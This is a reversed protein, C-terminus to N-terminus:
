KYKVLNHLNINGGRKTVYKGNLHRGMSGRRSIEPPEQVYM